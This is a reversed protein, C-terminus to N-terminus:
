NAFQIFAWFYTLFIEGLALSSSISLLPPEETETEWEAWKTLEEASHASLSMEHFITGIQKLRSQSQVEGWMLCNPHHRAKRGLAVASPFLVCFVSKGCFM